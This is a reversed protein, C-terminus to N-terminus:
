CGSSRRLPPRSRRRGAGDAAWETAAYRDIQDALLRRVESQQAPFAALLLDTDRLASAEQSVANHAQSRNSLVDAVLFGVLLGFILGM